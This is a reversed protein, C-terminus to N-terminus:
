MYLNSSAVNVIMSIYRTLVYRIHSVVYWVMVDEIGLDIPLGLSLSLSLNLGGESIQCLNFGLSIYMCTDRTLFHKMAEVILM